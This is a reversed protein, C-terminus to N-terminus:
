KKKSNSMTGELMEKIEPLIEKLPFTDFHDLWEVPDPISKDAAKAMTWIVDYFLDMTFYDLDEYKIGSIPNSKTGKGFVKAIKFLDAFYDRGFQAKYRKPLAATSKLRVAQNDIYITKEM